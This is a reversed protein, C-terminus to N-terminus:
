LISVSARLGMHFQRYRISTQRDLEEILQPHNPETLGGRAMADKTSALLAQRHAEVVDLHELGEICRSTDIGGDDYNRFISHLAENLKKRPNFGGRPFAKERAYHDIMSERLRAEIVADNDLIRLKRQIAQVFGVDRTGVAVDDHSILRSLTEFGTTLWWQELHRPSPTM